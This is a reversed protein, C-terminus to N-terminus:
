HLVDRGIQGCSTGGHIVLLHRRCLIRLTILILSLSLLIMKLKISINKLKKNLLFLREKRLYM